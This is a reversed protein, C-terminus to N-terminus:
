SAIVLIDRLTVKCACRSILTLGFTQQVGGLTDTLLVPVGKPTPTIGLPDAASPNASLTLSLPALPNQASATGEMRLRAGMRDLAPTSPLPLSRWPGAPPGYLVDYAEGRTRIWEGGFDALNWVIRGRTVVVAAWFPNAADLPVPKKFRFTQWTNPGADASSAELKVVESAGTPLPASPTRNANEWLVVRVEAGGEAALIPLRLAQLQTLRSDGPLRVCLAHLSDLQITATTSVEPGIPPEVRMPPIQGIATCTLQELTHAKGDNFPLSLPLVELGEEVFSLDVSGLNWIRRIEKEGATLSLVGPVRASLTVQFLQDSTLNPRGTLSALADTLDVPRKGATWGNGDMPIPGPYSWVPSGSNIRIELDSPPEPLLISMNDRIFAEEWTGSLILKIRETRIETFRFVDSETTNGALSKLATTDFASGLWRFVQITASKLNAGNGVEYGDKVGIGAITRLMGLDVVVISTNTPGASLRVQSVVPLLTWQAQVAGVEVWFKKVYANGALTVDLNVTTKGNAVIQPRFVQQVPVYDMATQTTYSQQTNYGM